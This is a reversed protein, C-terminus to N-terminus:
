CLPFVELPLYFCPQWKMNVKWFFTFIHAYRSIYKGYVNNTSFVSFPLSLLFDARRGSKQHLSLFCCKKIFKKGFKPLLSRAKEEKEAKLVFFIFVFVSLTLSLLIELYVCYCFFVMFFWIWIFVAFLFLCYWFCTLIFVSASVSLLLLLNTSFLSNCRGVEGLQGSKFLETIWVLFSKASPAM